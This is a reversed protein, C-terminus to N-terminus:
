FIKQFIKLRNEGVEAYEEKTIFLQNFTSMSSLMSAGIWTSIYRNGEAHIQTMGNYMIDHDFYSPLTKKIRQAFGPMMSTGGSLVINKLM